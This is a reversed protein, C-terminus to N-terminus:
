DLLREILLRLRHVLLLLPGMIALCFVLALPVFWGMALLPYLREWVRAWFVIVALAALCLFPGYPIADDRVLMWQVVGAALALLPALFFIVLCPQWGVFAGIMGMLLVDGFGMAERQLIQHGLIRVAWVIGGGCLMGILSSFLAAWSNGGIAWVAAVAATGVVGMALVRYTFQERAIRALCLLVARRLGHRAYWTRPLLALCWAWWCALAIVLSGFHPAGSLWQPWPNPSTLRLFPWQTLSGPPPADVFLGAEAVPPFAPLLSCPMLAAAVLGILTGPVTIADPITREDLDILSAALMLWCLVLHVAFHLHLVTMLVGPPPLAIGASLLGTYRTEWLYLWCCGSAALLEVLMPRIWFGRGHLNAERRLGLWGVVPLRDSWRRPPAEPLPPRWPSRRRQTFALADAALNALVGAALGLALLAALRVSLPIGLLANM